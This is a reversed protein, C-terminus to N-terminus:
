GATVNPISAGEFNGGYTVDFYAAFRAGRRTGLVQDLEARSWVFFKGEVGESDADQASYFGGDPARMERLVYRLTDEVVRRYRSESARALARAQAARSALVTLGLAGFLGSAIGLVVLTWHHTSEASEIQAEIDAQLAAGSSDM